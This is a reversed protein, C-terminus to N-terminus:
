ILNSWGKADPRSTRPGVVLALAKTGELGHLAAASQAPVPRASSGDGQGDIEVQPWQGTAPQQGGCWM